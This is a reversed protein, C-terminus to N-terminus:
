EAATARSIKLDFSFTSGKGPASEASICGGNFEVLSKAIKLGLGTGKAGPGNQRDIQVFAEFIKDQADQPIGPGNDEIDIRLFRSEEKAQVHIVGGKPTFKQANGLLNTLIHQISSVDCHATPLNDPVDLILSQDKSQCVPTFDNCFQILLAVLDVKTRHLEKKGAEIRALDLIQNVLDTLRDSNRL